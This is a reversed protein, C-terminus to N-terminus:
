DNDCIVQIGKNWQVFAYRFQLISFLSVHNRLLRYDDLMKKCIRNMKLIYFYNHCNMVIINISIIIHINIYIYQCKRILRPPPTSHQNDIIDNSDRGRCAQIYLQNCNNKNLMWIYWILSYLELLINANEFNLIGSYHFNQTEGGNGSLINRFCVHRDTRNHPDRGLM